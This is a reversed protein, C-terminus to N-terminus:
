ATRASRHGLRRKARRVARWGKTRILERPTASDPGDGDLLSALWTTDHDNRVLIRALALPDDGAHSVLNRVACGAVFGAEDVLRRVSGGHYGRPYAFSTVPRDLGEELLARSRQIDAAAEAPTLVDLDAHVHGHAGLEITAADITRLQEWSAMITGDSPVPDLFRPTTGVTSTTVFLTADLGREVLMPVAVEVFDAYGDDFTILITREPIPASGRVHDRVFDTVRQTRWGREVLLDLHAEFGAPTLSFPDLGPLPTERVAHYCLIPVRSM